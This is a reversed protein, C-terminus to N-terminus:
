SFSYASEYHFTRDPLLITAPFDPRNPADPFQEPELCFGQYRRWPHRLFQGTYFHLAPQNTILRMTLGGSPSVVEAAHQGGNLVFAHDFGGACLIQLDDRNLRDAIRASRRFDFETGEVLRPAGEPLGHTDIPLYRDADIKLQHDGLSGSAGALNFYPHTTFSVPTPRDTTADITVHLTDPTIEYVAIVDLAGPYGGDGHPSSCQLTVRRVGQTEVDIVKWLRSHLGDPGGHLHNPGDNVALNCTKGDITFRAGALRNAYRGIIRGMYDPDVSSTMVTPLILDLQGNRVPARLTMLTAGLPNIRAHLGDKWALTVATMERDDASVAISGLAVPSLAM